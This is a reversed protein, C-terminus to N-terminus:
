PLCNTGSCTPEDTTINLSWTKDGVVRTARATGNEAYPITYNWNRSPGAPLALKLFFSINSSIPTPGGRHYYFGYEMRYIKEAAQILKLNAIAEKDFVREKYPGYQTFALTALIGIIVIVVVLEMLTFGTLSIKYKERKSIQIKM